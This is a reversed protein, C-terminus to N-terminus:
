RQCRLAAASRSRERQLHPRQDGLRQQGGPEGRLRNRDGPERRGLDPLQGGHRTGTGARLRLPGRGNCRVGNILAVGGLSIDAYIVYVTHTREDVVAGGPSGAVTVEAPTQGCGASALANCTTGNIVSVTNDNGNTTYVTDTAEDVALGQPGDGVQVVPAAAGCGSGVTGNCTAGNIVSVTNDAFNAVYLTDTAQDVVDMNPGNGVTITRVTACGTSVRANCTATNIVSVTNAGSNVVYLTHTAQNIALGLPNPGVTVTRRPRRAAPAPSATATHRRQHRLGHGPQANGVYVTGTAQDVAVVSRTRASRCTRARRAGAIASGLTGPQPSRSAGRHALRGWGSAREHGGRHTRSDSPAALAPTTLVAVGFSALVAGLVM